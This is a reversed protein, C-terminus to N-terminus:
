EKENGKCNKKRLTSCWSFIGKIIKYIVWLIFFLIIIPIAFTGIYQVVIPLWPSYIYDYDYDIIDSNCARYLLNATITPLYLVNCILLIWRHLKMTFKKERLAWVFWPTIAPIVSIGCLFLAYDWEVQSWSFSSYHYHWTYYPNGDQYSTCTRGSIYISLVLMLISWLISFTIIARSLNRSSSFVIRKQPNSRICYKNYACALVKLTENITWIVFFACVGLWFLATFGDQMFLLSSDPNGCLEIKDKYARSAYFSIIGLSLLIDCTLLWLRYPKISFGEKRFAWAIWPTFTPIIIICIFKAIKSWEVNSVSFDPSLTTTVYGLNNYTIQLRGCDYFFPFLLLISWFLCITIIATRLSKKETTPM